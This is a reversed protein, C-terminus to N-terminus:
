RSDHSAPHPGIKSPESLHGWARELLQVTRDLGIISLSVGIDSLEAYGMGRFSRSRVVHCMEDYVTAWATGRPVRDAIYCAFEFAINEAESM